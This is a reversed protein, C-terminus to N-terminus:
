NSNYYKSESVQDCRPQGSYCVNIWKAVLMWSASVRSGIEQSLFEEVRDLLQVSQGASRSILSYQVSGSSVLTVDDWYPAVVLEAIPFRQPIFSTFSSAFSILGNSSIQFLILLCLLVALASIVIM